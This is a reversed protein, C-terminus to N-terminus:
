LQLYYYTGNITPCRKVCMNTTADGMLGSPCSKVCTWMSTGFNTAGQYGFGYSGCNSICKMLSPIAYMNTGCNQVCTGYTNTLAFNSGFIFPATCNVSPPNVCTATVYDRYYCLSADISSYCPPCGQFSNCTTTSGVQYFYNLATNCVCSGNVMKKKSDSCTICQTNSSGTCSSCDLHCKLVTFLASQIGWYYYFGSTNQVPNKNSKVKLTFQTNATGTLSIKGYINM